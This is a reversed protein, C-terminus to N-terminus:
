PNTFPGRRWSSNAFKWPGREGRALAEQVLTREKIVDMLETHDRFLYRGNHFAPDGVKRTRLRNSLITLTGPDAHRTPEAGLCKEGGVKNM